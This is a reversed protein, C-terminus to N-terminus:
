GTKWGDAYEIDGRNGYGSLGTRFTAVGDALALVQAGCAGNAFDMGTHDWGYESRYQPNMFCATVYFNDSRSVPCAYRAQGSTALGTPPQPVEHGRSLYLAPLAILAALLAMVLATRVSRNM